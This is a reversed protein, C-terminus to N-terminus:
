RSRAFGIWFADILHCVMQAASMRGWLPPADFRLHALRGQIEEACVIDLLTRKMRVRLLNSSKMPGDTKTKDDCGLFWARRRGEEVRHCSGLCKAIPRGMTVLLGLSSKLEESQGTARCRCDRQLISM